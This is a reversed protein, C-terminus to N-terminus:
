GREKLNEEDRQAEPAEAAGYEIYERVKQLYLKGDVAGKEYGKFHHRVMPTTECVLPKLATDNLASPVVYTRVKGWNILYRGKRTWRGIGSSGTGKYFNKNGQKTGLPWRKTGTKGWGYFPTGDPYKKWPRLLQAVQTPRM